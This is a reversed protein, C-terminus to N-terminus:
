PSYFLEHKLALATGDIGPFLSAATIGMRRLDALAVKFMSPNLDVVELYRKKAGAELGRLFAEPSPHNSFLMMGQQALLRANGKAAPRFLEVKPFPTIAILTGANTPFDQLFEPRLRFIRAPESTAPSDVVGKFAFFASIYPSKSWDLMPSPFGHHQALGVLAGRDTLDAVNYAGDGSASLYDAFVPLDHHLYRYLDVRGTRHFTTNMPLPRSQGRYLSDGAFRHSDMWSKCADWSELTVDARAAVSKLRHLEFTGQIQREESTFEFTGHIEDPGSERWKALVRTGDALPTELSYVQEIM